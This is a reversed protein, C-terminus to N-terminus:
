VTLKNTSEIRNTTPLGAASLMEAETGSDAALGRENRVQPSEAAIPALLGAM